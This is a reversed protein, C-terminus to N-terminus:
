GTRTPTRPHVLEDYRRLVEDAPGQSRVRGAVLLVVRDCMRAIAGLDHSVMIVTRGSAHIARLRELCKEQFRADGVALVEDLLLVDSQLHVAISFALRMYMGTSYSKVPVDMFDTLESFGVIEPLLAETDRSSVGFLSANLHVNERGTLEPHFGVGLEILPAVRGRVRVEGATPQLIGALLRLLTSKGSGNPGVLGLLEGAPVSLDVDRLATLMERQERHRPDVAALVRVKLDFARNRRILYTKTVGRLEIAGV